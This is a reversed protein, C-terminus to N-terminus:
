AVIEDLAKNVTPIAIQVRRHGDNDSMIVKVVTKAIQRQNESDGRKVLGQIDEVIQTTVVEGRPM